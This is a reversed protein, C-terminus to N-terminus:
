SQDFKNVLFSNNIKMVELTYNINGADEGQLLWYSKVTVRWTQPDKVTNGTIEFRSMSPSSSGAFEVQDTTKYLEESMFSKAEGLSRDRKAQMFNTVALNAQDADASNVASKTATVSASASATVTSTASVTASVSVTVSALNESVDKKASSIQFAVLVIAGLLMLALIVVLIILMIRKSSGVQENNQNDM